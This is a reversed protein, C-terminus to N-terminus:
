TKSVGVIAENGDLGITDLNTKKAMGHMGQRPTMSLRFLTAENSGDERAELVAPIYGGLGSERHVFLFFFVQFGSYIKNTISVCAAAELKDGDLEGGRALLVELLV